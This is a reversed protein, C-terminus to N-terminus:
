GSSPQFRPEAVALDGPCSAWDRQAETEEDTFPIDTGVEHTPSPSSVSTYTLQGSCPRAHLSGTIVPDKESNNGDNVTHAPLRSEM